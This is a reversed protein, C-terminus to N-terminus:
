QPVSIDLLPQVRHAADVREVEELALLSQIRDLPAYASTVGGVQSIVSIGLEALKSSSVNGRIFVGGARTGLTAGRAELDEAAVDGRILVAGEGPRDPIGVGEEVEGREIMRALRFDLRPDRFLGSSSLPALVTTVPGAQTESGVDGRCRSPNDDSCA